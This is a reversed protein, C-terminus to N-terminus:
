VVVQYKIQLTMDIPNAIVDNLEGVIRLTYEESGIIDVLDTEELSLKVELLGTASITATGILKEATEPTSVYVEIWNFTDFTAGPTNINLIAEYPTIEDLSEIDGGNDKIEQEIDSQLVKEVLTYQGADHPDVTFDVDVWDTQFTIDIADDFWECSYTIGLLLLVTVPVLLKRKM